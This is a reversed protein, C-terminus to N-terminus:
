AAVEPMRQSQLCMAMFLHRLRDTPQSDLFGATFDVPFSARYSCFQTMLASRDMSSVLCMLEEVQQTKLM